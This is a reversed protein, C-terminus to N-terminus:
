SFAAVTAFCARWGSEAPYGSEHCPGPDQVTSAVKIGASSGADAQGKGGTTGSTTLCPGRISRFVQGGPSAWAHVDEISAMATMTMWNPSPQGEPM